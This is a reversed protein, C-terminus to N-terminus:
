LWVRGGPRLLPAVKMVEDMVMVHGQMDLPAPTLTIIRIDEGREGTHPNISGSKWTKNGVVHNFIAAGQIIMEITAPDDEQQMVQRAGNADQTYVYIKVDAESGSIGGVL